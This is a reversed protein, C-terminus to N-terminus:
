LTELYGTHVFAILGNPLLFRQFLMKNESDLKLMVESAVINGVPISECLVTITWATINKRARYLKM